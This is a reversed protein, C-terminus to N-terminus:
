TFISFYKLFNNSTLSETYVAIIPFYLCIDLYYKLDVLWFLHNQLDTM